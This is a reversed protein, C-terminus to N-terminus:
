GRVRELALKLARRVLTQCIASKYEASAHIDSEPETGKVALDGAERLLRESVVKGELLAEAERARVPTGAMGGLAIRARACRNDEGLTVLAAVGVIANGGEGDNVEVFAWGTRPPVAPIRIQVLVEDPELTTTLYSIFFEEAPVERVGGNARRVVFTAELALTSTPFEATPDAHCVSGGFTGRNRIQPHGIWQAAESLLPCYEKVIASFEVERHRTLAGIVLGQESQEIGSMEKVRNIDILFEPRALRMNLMPILSQGGALIKAADGYQSLLTLAEDVTDVRFYEFKSPKM